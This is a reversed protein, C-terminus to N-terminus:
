DAPPDAVREYDDLKRDSLVCWNDSNPDPPPLEDLLIDPLPKEVERVLREGTDMRMGVWLETLTTRNYGASALSWVTNTAQVEKVSGGCEWSYAPGLM